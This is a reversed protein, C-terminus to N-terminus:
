NPRILVDMESPYSVLMCVCVCAFVCLVCMSVLLKNNLQNKVSCVVNYTTVM